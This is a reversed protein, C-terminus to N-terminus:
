FLVNPLKGAAAIQQWEVIVVHKLGYRAAVRSWFKINQGFELHIPDLRM